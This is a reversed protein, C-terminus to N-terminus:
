ATAGAATLEDVAERAIRRAEASLKGMRVYHAKKLLQGLRYAQDDDLAPNAERAKRTWRDASSVHNKSANANATMQGWDESLLRAM